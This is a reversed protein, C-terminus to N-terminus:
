ENEIRCNEAKDVNCALTNVIPALKKLDKDKVASTVASATAVIGSAILPIGLFPNALTIAVGGKISGIGTSGIGIKLFIKAIKSITRKFKM